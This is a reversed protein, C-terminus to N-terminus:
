SRIRHSAKFSPELAAKWELAKRWDRRAEFDLDERWDRRAEFNQNRAQEPETYHQVPTGRISFNAVELRRLQRITGSHLNQQMMSVIDICYMAHDEYQFYIRSGSQGSSRLAQECLTTSNKYAYGAVM